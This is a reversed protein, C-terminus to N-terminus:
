PAEPPSVYFYRKTGPSNSCKIRGDKVLRSVTMHVSRPLNSQTARFQLGGEVLEHVLDRLTSGTTGKRKLCEILAGKMSLSFYPLVKSSSDGILARRKAEGHEHAILADIKDLEERIATARLHLDAWERLLTSRKQELVDNFTSM